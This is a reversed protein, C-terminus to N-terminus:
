GRKRDRNVRELRASRRREDLADPPSVPALGHQLDLLRVSLALVLRRCELEPVAVARDPQEVMVGLLVREQELEAHRPRREGGGALVRRQVDEDLEERPEPLRGALGERREGGLGRPPRLGQRALVPADRWLQQLCREVREALERRRLTLLHEHVLVQVAVVHQRGLALGPELDVRLRERTLTLERHRWDGAGELEAMRFAVDQVAEVTQRALEAEVALPRAAPRDRLCDRPRAVAIEAARM